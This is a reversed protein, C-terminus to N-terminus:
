RSTAADFPPFVEDQTVPKIQFVEPYMDKQARTFDDTSLIARQQPTLESLSAGTALIVERKKRAVRLEDPKIGALAEAITAGPEHISKVPPRFASAVKEALQVEARGLETVSASM